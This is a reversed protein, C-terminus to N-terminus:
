ARMAHMAHERLLANQLVKFQMNFGNKALLFWAKELVDLLFRHRNGFCLGFIWSRRTAFIDGLFLSLYTTFM